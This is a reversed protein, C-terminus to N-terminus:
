ACGARRALAQAAADAVEDVFVHERAALERVDGLDDFPHRRLAELHDVGFRQALVVRLREPLPALPQFRIGIRRARLDALFFIRTQRM